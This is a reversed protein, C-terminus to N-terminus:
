AGAAACRYGFLHLALSYWAGMDCRYIRDGMCESAVADDVSHRYWVRQGIGALVAAGFIVLAPGENKLRQLLYCFLM